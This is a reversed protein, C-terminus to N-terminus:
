IEFCREFKIKVFSKTSLSQSLGIFVKVVVDLRRIWFKELPLSIHKVNKGVLKLGIWYLFFCDVFKFLSAYANLCYTWQEIHAGPVVVKVKNTKARPRARSMLINIHLYWSQISIIVKIDKTSQNQRKWRISQFFDTIANM